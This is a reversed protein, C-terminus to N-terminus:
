GAHVRHNANTLVYSMSYDGPLTGLDEWGSAPFICFVGGAIERPDQPCGGLESKLDRSVERCHSNGERQGLYGFPPRTSQKELPLDPTNTHVPSDCGVRDFPANSVRKKSTGPGKGGALSGECALREGPEVAM